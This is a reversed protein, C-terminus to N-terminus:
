QDPDYQRYSEYWIRLFRANKHAVMVQNGLTLEKKKISKPDVGLCMEFVRFKDMNKLVYVDNDLYIGGFHM